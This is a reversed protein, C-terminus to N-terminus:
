WNALKEKAGLGPPKVIGPPSVLPAMLTLCNSTALVQQWQESNKPSPRWFPPNRRGGISLRNLSQGTIRTWIPICRYSPLSAAPWRRSM